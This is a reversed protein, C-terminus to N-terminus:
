KQVEAWRVTVAGFDARSFALRCLFCLAAALAFVPHAAPAFGALTIWLLASGSLVARCISAVKIRM